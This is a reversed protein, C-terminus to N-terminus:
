VGVGIGFGGSSWGFALVVLAALIAIGVLGQGIRDERLPGPPKRFAWDVTAWSLTALLLPGFPMRTWKSLYRAVALALGWPGVNGIINGVWDRVPNPVVRQLALTVLVAPFPSVFLLWMAHQHWAWRGIFVLVIIAVIMWGQDRTTKEEPMSAHPQSGPGQSDSPSKCVKKGNLLQCLNWHVPEVQRRAYSRTSPKRSGM